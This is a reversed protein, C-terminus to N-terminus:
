DRKQELWPLLFEGYLMDLIAVAPIALLIGVMGFMRGGVIVGILVWLGSVGLSEGVLKPKLVYGDITQLIFTFVIFIIAYKPEVLLLLLGGIVGGIIPGFTPILNTLAVIMSVLGVYPMGAITMFIANVVGVIMADILNFVIYRNLIADSRRLVYAVDNYKDKCVAKLFRKSGSKLRDKEALFYISLLFAIFIQGLTKGVGATATMITAFNESLYKTVTNIVDTSSSVFSSLDLVSSSVGVADLTRQLGAAYNDLNSAFTAVSSVLQPVVNMGFLVLFLIVTVFALANGLAAKIREKKIKAFVKNRYLMALPNIIYAIVAGMFVTSFFGIFTGIGSLVSNIRILIVFFLVGICISVAMSYWPRDRFKKM